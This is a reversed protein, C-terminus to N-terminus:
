CSACSHFQLKYKSVRTLLDCRRFSLHYEMFFLFIFFTKCNLNRWGMTTERLVSLNQSVNLKLWSNQDHNPSVQQSYIRYSLLESSIHSLGLNNTLAM